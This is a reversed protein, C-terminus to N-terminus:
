KEIPDGFSVKDIKLDTLANALPSRAGGSQVVKGTSKDYMLYGYHNDEMAKNYASINKIRSWEIHEVPNYIAFPVLGENEFMEDGLEDQLDEQLDEDEMEEWDFIMIYFKQEPDPTTPGLKKKFHFVCPQNIFKKLPSFHDKM